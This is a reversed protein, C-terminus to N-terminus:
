PRDEYFYDREYKQEALTPLDRHSEAWEMFAAVWEEPTATEYFSRTESRDGTDQRRTWAGFAGSEVLQAAAQAGTQPLRHAAEEATKRIRKRALKRGIQATQVM